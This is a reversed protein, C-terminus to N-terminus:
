PAASATPSTNFISCLKACSSTSDYARREPSELGMWVEGAYAEEWPKREQTTWPISEAERKGVRIAERKTICDKRCGIDQLIDICYISESIHIHMSTGDVSNRSTHICPHEMWLIEQHISTHINWGIFKKISTHMSTGDVSSRSPHICAHEMWQVERHIYPHINWGSFKEISTHM